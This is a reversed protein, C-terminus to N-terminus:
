PAQRNFETFCDLKRIHEEEPSLQLYIGKKGLHVKQSKRLVQNIPPIDDKNLFSINNSLRSLKSNASFCTGRIYSTMSSGQSFVLYDCDESFLARQQRNIKLEGCHKSLDFQYKRLFVVQNFDKYTLKDLTTECTENRCFREHQEILVDNLCGDKNLCEAADKGDYLSCSYSLMALLLLAFRINKISLKNNNRGIEMTMLSRYYKKIRRM